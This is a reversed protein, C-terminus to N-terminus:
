NIVDEHFDKYKKRCIKLQTHTIPVLHFQHIRTKLQFKDCSTITRDWNSTVMVSQFIQCLKFYTKRMSQFVQCLKFYRKCESIVKQWLKSYRICNFIFNQQVRFYTKSIPRILAKAMKRPKLFYTLILCCPCSFFMMRFM